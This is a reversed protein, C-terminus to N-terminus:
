ANPAGVTDAEAADERRMRLLSWGLGGFLITGAALFVIVASIPVRDYRVAIVREDADTHLRVLGAIEPAWRCIGDVGTTCVDAERELETAPYYTARIVVGALPKDDADTVQVRTEVRETVPADPTSIAAHATASFSAAVLCAILTRTM